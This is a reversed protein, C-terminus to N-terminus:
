PIRYDLIAWWAFTLIGGASIFPVTQGFASKNLIRRAALVWLYGAACMLFPLCAYIIPDNGLNYLIANRKEPVYRAAHLGFLLSGAFWLGSGLQVIGFVGFMILALFRGDTIQGVKTRKRVETAPTAYPNLNM